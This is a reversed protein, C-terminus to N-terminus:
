GQNDYGYIMRRARENQKVIVGAEEARNFADLMLLRRDDDSLNPTDIAARYSARFEDKWDGKPLTSPHNMYHGYYEHALVAKESLIDGANKSNNDPFIDGRVHIKQTGDVFGTQIGYNFELISSPIKIEEACEIIQHIEDDNLIYQPSRRLGNAMNRSSIDRAKIIGSEASKDVNKDGQKKVAAAYEEATLWDHEIFCRCNIDHGAVGSQGPATTKVGDGLDFLEDTKVIKGEMRM